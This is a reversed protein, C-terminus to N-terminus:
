YKSITQTSHNVVHVHNNDDISVGSICGDFKINNIHKGTQDYVQLSKGAWDAVFCLGLQDIAVGSPELVTGNGYERIFTGNPDFVKIAKSGCAAVHIKGHKDIAVDRPAYVSPASCLIKLMKGDPTFAQVRNRSEEAVYLVGNKSVTCGWAGSLQGAGIECLFEGNITMKQCRNGHFEVVYVNDGIVSVGLPRKFQGPRTGNSGFTSKKTGTSDYIEVTDAIHNAVIYDGSRHVAVHYANTTKITNIPDHLSSHEKQGVVFVSGMATISNLVATADSSFHIADDASLTMPTLKVSSKITSIRKQITTLVSIFESADYSESASVVFDNCTLIAEKLYALREIQATLKDLKSVVIEDCQKLLIARRAELSQHLETFVKSISDCISGERIKVNDCVIRGSNMLDDLKSVMEPLERVEDCFSNKQRRVFEEVDDLQHGPHKGLACQICILLECDNCFLTIEQRIHVPCTTPLFTLNERLKERIETTDDLLMVKHHLHSKRSLIHQTHCKECLFSICTCCFSVTKLTPERACEECEPLSPALVRGELKAIIAEHELYLNPPVSEIGDQPVETICKCSHCRIECKSGVSLKKMDRICKLCFSHLCSLLRPDEYTENCKKCIALSETATVSYFSAPSSSRVVNSVIDLKINADECVTWARGREKESRGRDDRHQSQSRVAPVSIRKRSRGEDGDEGKANAVEEGEM